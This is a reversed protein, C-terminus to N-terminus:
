ECKSSDPDEIRQLIDSALAKADETRLSPNLTLAARAILKQPLSDLRNLREVEPPIQSLLLNEICCRVEKSGLDGISYQYGNISFPDFALTNFSIVSGLSHEQDLLDRIRRNTPQSPGPKLYHSLRRALNETEGIYVAPKGERQVHWRYIAPGQFHQRLYRSIEQPFSYPVDILGQVALWRFSIELNTM